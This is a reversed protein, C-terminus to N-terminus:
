KDGEPPTDRRNWGKVAELTIDKMAEELPPVTVNRIVPGSAYCFDCEVWASRCIRRTTRAMLRGRGVGCFPCNKITMLKPKEDRKM